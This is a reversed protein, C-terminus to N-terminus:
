VQFTMVEMLEDIEFEYLQDEIKLITAVVDSLLDYSSGRSSSDRWQALCVVANSKGPQHLVLHALSDPLNGKLHHAFDTVLLRILFNRLSPEDESYGFLSKAMQWFSEDLDFKEVQLWVEPPNELDIDEGNETITFEHFLTRVINFWEPQDAKVAVAIMKRDLDVDTDNSVVLSQLKQLRQKSDFFKRRLALHERLHQNALGLQDLIISARDARFSRSYLRIDLLWDAEYDPEETPAYVLYREEPDDREIRIKAEFAEVRDLRLVHVGEPLNLLSLTIFFEREPDNWFVIRHGEEDFLRALAKEIQTNDM